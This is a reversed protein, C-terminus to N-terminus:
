FAYGVFTVQDPKGFRRMSLWIDAAAQKLAEQPTMRYTAHM